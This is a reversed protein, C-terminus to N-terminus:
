VEYGMLKDVIRMAVSVPGNLVLKRALAVPANAGHYLAGQLRAQNVIYSTRERRAENYRRLAIPIDARLSLERAIAVGDEIAMCGGQGLAPTTPHAADGILAVRGDVYVDVPKRDYIDQRVVDEPPTAEIVAPVPGWWDRFQAIAEKAIDPGRSMNTTPEAMGTGYWSWVGNGVPFVGFNAGKGYVQIYTHPQTDPHDFATASRWCTYGAYRPPQDGLMGKRIVSGIGDAGILIESRMESGDAFTSTVGDRDQRYGTCQSALRVTGDPLEAALGQQLEARHLGFSDQGHKRALEGVPLTKLSSGDAMRNEIEDVRGGRAGIADAIGLRRLARMANIWLTLGSGVETLRPMREFVAVELGVRRLGIATTLGGIGGGIVVADVDTAM